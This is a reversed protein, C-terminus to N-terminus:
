HYNYKKALGRFVDEFPKVYARWLKGSADHRRSNGEDRRNFEKIMEELNTQMETVPM